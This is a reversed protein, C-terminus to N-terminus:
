VLFHELGLSDEYLFDLSFLTVFDLYPMAYDRGTILERYAVISEDKRPSLAHCFPVVRLRKKSEYVGICGMERLQSTSSSKIYMRKFIDERLCALRKEKINEFFVWREEKTPNPLTFLVDINNICYSGSGRFRFARM